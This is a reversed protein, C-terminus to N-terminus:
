FLCTRSVTRGKIQVAEMLIKRLDAAATRKFQDYKIAKYGM